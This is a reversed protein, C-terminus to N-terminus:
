KERGLGYRFLFNSFPLFLELITWFIFTTIKQQICKSFHPFDILNRGPFIHNVLAKHMKGRSTASRLLEHQVSLIMEQINKPRNTPMLDQTSNLTAFTCLAELSKVYGDDSFSIQSDKYYEEMWQIYSDKECLSFHGHLLEGCLLQQCLGSTNNLHGKISALGEERRGKALSILGKMWRFKKNFNESAWVYLGSINEGSQDLNKMALAALVLLDEQQDTAKELAKQCQRLALAFEGVYFALHATMLRMRSLWDLCTKRNALFFASLNNGDWAQLMAKELCDFVILFNRAQRIRSPTIEHTKSFNSALLRM